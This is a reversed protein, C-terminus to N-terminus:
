RPAEDRIATLLRTVDDAEVDQGARILEILRDDARVATVDVPKETM